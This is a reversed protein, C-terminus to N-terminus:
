HGCKELLIEKCEEPYPFNFYCYDLYVFKCIEQLISVPVEKPEIYFEPPLNYTSSLRPIKTNPPIYGFGLYGMVYEFESLDGIFVINELWDLNHEQLLFSIQPYSHAECFAATKPQKTNLNTKVQALWKLLRQSINIDGLFISKYKALKKESRNLSHAAHHLHNDINKTQFLLKNAHDLVEPDISDIQIKTGRIRFACERFGSLFHEIPDRVFAFLKRNNAIKASYPGPHKDFRNEITTGGCKWIHVFIWDQNLKVVSFRKTKASFRSSHIGIEAKYYTFKQTHYASKPILALASAVDDIKFRNERLTLLLFFIIVALCITFCTSKFKQFENKSVISDLHQHLSTSDHLM